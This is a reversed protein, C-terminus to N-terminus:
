NATWSSILLGATVLVAYVLALRGTGALVPILDRGVAGSRIRRGLPIALPLSLLGLLVWRPWSASAAAWSQAIGAVGVLLM